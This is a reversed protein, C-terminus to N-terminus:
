TRARAAEETIKRHFEQDLRYGWIIVASLALGALPVLTMIAKIGEITDPTQVTSLTEYGVLSLLWGLVFGNVGLALQKSFSAIGFVKADHRQGTKWETYEVTDPIMAWVLM